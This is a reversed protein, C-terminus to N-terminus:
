AVPPGVEPLCMFTAQLPEVVNIGYGLLM